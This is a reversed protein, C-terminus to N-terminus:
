VAVDVRSNPVGRVVLAAPRRERLMEGLTSVSGVQAWTLEESVPQPEPAGGASLVVDHRFRTLENASWGRKLQVDVATIGHIRSPLAQFWELAVVLEQEQRLRRAVRERLEARRAATGARTLEVSTHFA